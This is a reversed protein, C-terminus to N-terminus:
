QLLSRDLVGVLGAKEGDPSMIHRYVKYDIMESLMQSHGDCYTVIVLGSHASGPRVRAQWAASPPLKRVCKNFSACEPIGANPPWWCMGVDGEYIRRRNGTSVSFELPVYGGFTVVSASISVLNEANVNEALMLTTSSGDVNSLYDLSVSVRSVPVPNGSVIISQHDHFVGDEKGGPRPDTAGGTVTSWDPTSASSITSMDPWGCNVVYQLNPVGAGEVTPSYSPCMTVGLDVRPRIVRNTGSGAVPNPEHWINWLDNRELDPLISVVWSANTPFDGNADAWGADLDLNSGTAGDNVSTDTVINDAFGPFKGRRSEYNLLALGLNKENNMCTVRRGSERAAQVAPLLLAILMGIITIVVLLEVLTFGRRMRRNM